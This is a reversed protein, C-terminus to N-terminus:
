LGVQIYPFGSEISSSPSQVLRKTRIDVHEENVVTVELEPRVKGCSNRLYVYARLAEVLRRKHSNSAQRRSLKEFNKEVFQMSSSFLSMLGFVSGLVAGLLEILTVRLARITTLGSSTKDLHV